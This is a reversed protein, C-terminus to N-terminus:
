LKKNKYIVDYIEGFGHKVKNLVEFGYNLLLKKIEDKNNLYLDDEHEEIQIYKVQNKLPFLGQLVSYEHGEVDVKVIDIKENKYHTNLFDTLRIVPTEYKDVIMNKKSVGLIKEKKKLWESSSNVKEFTSSESLINESFNLNGNISSCGLNYIDCNKYKRKKIHKFLRKNPEFGIIKVGKNIKKFFQISQGKNVGVDVVTKLEEKEFLKIYFSKLKRYFILNENLKIFFSVLNVRFKM